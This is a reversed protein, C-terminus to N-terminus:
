DLHVNKPCRGMDKTRGGVMGESGIEGGMGGVWWEKWGGNRGGVMGKWGGNGEVWWEEVEIM